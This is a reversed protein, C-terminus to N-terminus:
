YNQKRELNMLQEDKGARSLNQLSKRDTAEAARIVPDPAVKHQGGSPQAMSHLQTSDTIVSGQM